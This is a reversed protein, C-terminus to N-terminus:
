NNEKELFNVMKIIAQTRHSLGSKEDLTMEAFTRNHGDPMFIPDYGFGKSGIKETIIKGVVEGDFQCVKGNYILTIVTRFKATRDKEEELNKLLLNMNDDHSRQPGAYRASYVGPENNLSPVELGSDDALCNQKYKEFIYEAKLQSNQALTTGTEEIDGEFGIQSLTILEFKDGLFNSIEEVKHTNNTALVLKIKEM